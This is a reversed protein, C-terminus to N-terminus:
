SKKGSRLRAKSGKNGKVLMDVERCGVWGDSGLLDEVTRAPAPTWSAYQDSSSSTLRARKKAKQVECKKGPPHLIGM